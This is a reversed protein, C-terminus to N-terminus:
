HSSALRSRSFPINANASQSLAALRESESGVPETLLWKVNEAVAWPEGEGRFELRKKEVVGDTLAGVLRSQSGKDGAADHGRGRRAEERSSIAEGACM